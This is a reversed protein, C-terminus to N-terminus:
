INTLLKVHGMFYKPIICNPASYMKNLPLNKNKINYLILRNDVNGTNNNIKLKLFRYAFIIQYFFSKNSAHYMM